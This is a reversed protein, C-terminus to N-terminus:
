TNEQTHRKKYCSEFLCFDFLITKEVLVDLPINKKTIEKTELLGLMMGIIRSLVYQSGGDTIQVNEERKLSEKLLTQFYAESYTRIEAQELFLAQFLSPSEEVFHIFNQAFEILQHNQKFYQTEILSFIYDIVGERLETMDHFVVYIPQTSINGERAVARATLGNFGVQEVVRFGSKILQHRDSKLSM